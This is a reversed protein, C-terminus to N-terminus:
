NFPLGEDMVADPITAWGGEDQVTPSAPAAAQAPAAARSRTATTNQATPQTSRAQGSRTTTQRQQPTQQPVQQKQAQAQQYYQQGQQMNYDPATANPQQATKADLFDFGNVEVDTTYVTAGHQNQYSGTRISGTVAIRSGKGFHQQITEARKGWTQCSIFDADRTGDPKPARDIAVTFRAFAMQGNATNIYRLDVDKTLRGILQVTNM